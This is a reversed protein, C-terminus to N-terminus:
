MSDITQLTDLADAEVAYLQIAIRITHMLTDLDVPKALVSAAGMRMLQAHLDADDHGTMVIVSIAPDRELLLQTARGGDLGPMDYDLLAVRPKEPAADYVLMADVGDRAILVAYGARELLRKYMRRFVVEDDVLMVLGSRATPQPAVRAPPPDTHAVSDLAAPLRITFKTGHEQQTAVDISGGHREVIGKVTALGLGFGVGKAKTTFLPEFIRATTAEDMGVGDDQVIIVVRPDPALEQSAHVRLQGGHPMADRANLLLNMLVQHLSVTGGSAVLGPEVHSTLVVNRPFTREALQTVERVL